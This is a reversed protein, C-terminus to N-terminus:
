GRVPTTAVIREVVTSAAEHAAGASPFHGQPIIRHTLVLPACRAVDDATAYPRGETAARARALAALHLTARPSAGLRLSPDTRTAATIAVCYRIVREDMHLASVIQRVQNLTDSDAVQPLTELPDQGLRAAVLATEAEANPYGMTIRAMFRDRQAEPLLFTGEMDIPNQTALVIFPEPLTYTHGDVTVRGEGMAELLASQTKPTARNIEDALVVGSFVPGPHFRFHQTSQDYISVGTVDTPLMDSTFQIRQASIGSVTALAMALSTKGVGPVDEILLHGSAFLVRIATTIQRDKGSIARSISRRMADALQAIDTTM